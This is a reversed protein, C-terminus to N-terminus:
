LDICRIWDHGHVFNSLDLSTEYKGAVWVNSPRHLNERHLLPIWLLLEGKNGCIWGDDEIVSQDTFSVQTAPILGKTTANLIHISKDASPAIQLGDSSFGLSTALHPHAVCSGTVMGRSTANWLRITEDSSGSIIHQGDPSFGVSTVAYKHGTFPGAVAEGTTANWVCITKDWSGSVIHQGDPSFGVSTVVNTHGTFPGAVAEGTTANWVCIVGNRLGAAIWQGDPSLAISHVEGGVNRIRMELSPWHALQRCEVHLSHSFSKSYHLSVHSNRPAFPLASLYVHPASKAM